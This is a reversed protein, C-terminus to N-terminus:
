IRIFRQAVRPLFANFRLPADTVALCICDEGPEAVPTHHVDQDAIEVDGRAFRGDEDAFAGQLVLTVETGQHGHDPVACGAPIHFLRATADGSTELIAQRVGGGIPRWAIDEVGGAVYSRLPEPLVDDMASPVAIPASGPVEREILAMTAALSDDSIAMETCDELVAGGVADFSALRSRCEDCISIHTAIVLNFAEPLAGAAYGMLLEDSLHHKITM